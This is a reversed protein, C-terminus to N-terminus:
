KQFSKESMCRSFSMMKSVVKLSPSCHGPALKFILSFSSIALCSARSLTSTISAPKGTAEGPSKSDTLCIASSIRPTVMAPRERASSFSISAVAFAKSFASDGRMWTKKDVELTCRSCITFFALSSIMSIPTFAIFNARLYQSSISNEGMSAVRVSFSKRASTVRSTIEAPAIVTFM